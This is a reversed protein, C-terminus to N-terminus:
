DNSVESSVEAVPKGVYYRVGQVEAADKAVSPETNRIGHIRRDVDIAKALAESAREATEMMGRLERREEKTLEPNAQRTLLVEMWRLQKQSLYQHEALTNGAEASRQDQHKKRQEDWKERESADKLQFMNLDLMLCIESLPKFDYVYLRRALDLKGQDM